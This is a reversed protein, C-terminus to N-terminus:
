GSSAPEKLLILSGHEVVFRSGGSRGCPYDSTNQLINSHFNVKDVCTLHLLPTGDFVRFTNGEIQINRHCANGERLTPDINPSSEVTGNGWVGFNCNEFLNNRITVDRVAARELVTTWPM